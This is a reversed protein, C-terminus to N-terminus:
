TNEIQANKKAKENKGGKKIPILMVSLSRGRMEAKKDIAAYDALEDILKNLLAYGKEQHLISRGKYYITAKVYYGKELFKIIHEKRYSYDHEATNPSFKIEKIVTKSQKKRAKQRKKELNYKFKGLDMIKCIPYDKGASVMILDLGEERAKALAQDRDMITVGDEVILRIKGAQIENNVYYNKADKM